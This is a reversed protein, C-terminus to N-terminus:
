VSEAGNPTIVMFRVMMRDMGGSFHPRQTALLMAGGSTGFDLYVDGWPGALMGDPVKRVCGSREHIYLWDKPEVHGECPMNGRSVHFANIWGSSM